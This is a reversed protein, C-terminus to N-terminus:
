SGLMNPAEVCPRTISANFIAKFHLIPLLWKIAAIAVFGMFIPLTWTPFRAAVVVTVVAVVVGWWRWLSDEKEAVTHHPHHLVIHRQTNVGNGAGLNTMHGIMDVIVGGNKRM